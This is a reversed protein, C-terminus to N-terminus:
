SGARVARDSAELFDLVEGYHIAFSLGELEAAALKQTVVGIVKDGLFLPGGSNGPNLATDTQIFKM